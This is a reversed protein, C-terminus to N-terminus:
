KQKYYDKGMVKRLANYKKGRKYSSYAGYAMGAKQGYKESNRSYAKDRVGIFIDSEEEPSLYYNGYRYKINDAALGAAFGGFKGVVHGGAVRATTDLARRAKSKRLVKKVSHTVKSNPHQHLYAKQQETSMNLFWRPVSELLVTIDNELLIKQYEEKIITRLHSESICM